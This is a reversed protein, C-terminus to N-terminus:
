WLLLLLQAISSLGILGRVLFFRLQEYPSSSSLLRFSSEAGNAASAGGYGPSCGGSCGSGNEIRGSALQRCSRLDSMGDRAREWRRRLGRQANRNADLLQYATDLRVLYDDVPALSPPLPTLSSSLHSILSRLPSLPLSLHLSDSSLSRVTTLTLTHNLTSNFHSSHPSPPFPFLSPLSHRPLLVLPYFRRPNSLYWYHKKQVISYEM